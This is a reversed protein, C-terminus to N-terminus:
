KIIYYSMGPEDFCKIADQQNIDINDVDDVVAYPSAIKTENQCSTHSMPLNAARNDETCDKSQKTTENDEKFNTMLTPDNTETKDSIETTANNLRMQENTVKSMKNCNESIGAADNQKHLEANAQFNVLGATQAPGNDIPLLTDSTTKGTVVNINESSDNIIKPSVDSTMNDDVTNRKAICADNNSHTSVDQLKLSGNKHIDTTVNLNNATSM